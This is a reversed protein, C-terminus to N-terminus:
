TTMAMSPRIPHTQPRLLTVLSRRQLDQGQRAHVVHGARGRVHVGDGRRLASVEGDRRQAGHSCALLDGDDHAGLAEM